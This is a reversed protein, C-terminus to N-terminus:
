VHPIIVTFLVMDCGVVHQRANWTATQMQNLGTLDSKAGPDKADLIGDVAHCDVGDGRRVCVSRFTWFWGM